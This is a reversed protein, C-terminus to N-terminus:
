EIPKWAQWAPRCTNPSECKRTTLQLFTLFRSEILWRLVVSSLQARLHGNRWALWRQWLSVTRRGCVETLVIRGLRDGGAPRGVHEAYPDVRRKATAFRINFSTPKGCAAAETNQCLSLPFTGGAAGGPFRHAPWQSAKPSARTPECHVHSTLGCSGLLAKRLM